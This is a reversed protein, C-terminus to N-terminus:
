AALSSAPDAASGISSTSAADSCAYILSAAALTAALFAPRRDTLRMPPEPLSTQAEVDADGRLGRPTPPSHPLGAHPARTARGPDNSRHREEDARGHHASRGRAEYKLASRDGIRGGDRRMDDI